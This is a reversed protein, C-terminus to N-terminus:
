SSGSLEVALSAAPPLRHVGQPRWGLGSAEGLYDALLYAISLWMETGQLGAPSGREFAFGKGDVWHETTRALVAAMQTRLEPRRYDTQQGALWLPHVVDLVNCATRNREAFWGNDRCHTVVTDISAEPAPLPLGFQAYTGRTLRYFGNVPMLWGWDPHAGGWMGTHRDLRTHLWGLLTELGKSSAHHRRNLYVATAWFDVWAGAPWALERWPLGDLRVLLEEDPLDEVCRVREAPSAGLCELAYGVSLVGYHHFDKGIQWRLPDEPCGEAPDLFLGTVPDQTRQLRGILLDVGISEQLGTLGDCAAAIEVADCVARQTLPADPADVYTDLPHDVRCREVVDVWQTRVREDLRALPDRATRGSPRADRRHRLVRAPVGGVVSYAPVNRTVVAGAALVSHAGVTVGDCVVVHTGVWVDDEIVIGEEVLGQLWIPTDLDDFVHNFGYLAAHSSVRVGNGITVLGAMTAHPNISCDQGIRIRDRLQCGAAIYSRDGISLSECVVNASPAIYVREGIEAGIRRRLEDHREPQGPWSGSESWVALWPEIEVQEDTPGTRESRPRGASLEAM